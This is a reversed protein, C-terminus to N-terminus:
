FARFFVILRSVGAHATQGSAGTLGMAEATGEECGVDSDVEDLRSEIYQPLLKRSDGEPVHSSLQGIPIMTPRFPDEEIECKAVDQMEEKKADVETKIESVGPWM